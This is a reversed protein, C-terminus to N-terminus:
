HHPEYHEAAIFEDGSQYTWDKPPINPPGRRVETVLSGARCVTIKYGVWISEIAEIVQNICVPQHQLFRRLHNAISDGYLEEFEVASVLQQKRTMAYWFGNSDVHVADILWSMIEAHYIINRLVWRGGEQLSAWQTAALAYQGFYPDGLETCADEFRRKDTENLYEHLQAVHGPDGPVSAFVADLLEPTIEPPLEIPGAMPVIVRGDEIGVIMRGKKTTSDTLGKLTQYPSM